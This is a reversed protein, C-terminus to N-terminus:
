KGHQAAFADVVYQHIFEPAGHMLTYAYLEDRAAHEAPPSQEM